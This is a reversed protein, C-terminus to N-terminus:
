GRGRWRSDVLIVFGEAEGCVIEVKRQLGACMANGGHVIRRIRLVEAVYENEFAFVKCVVVAGRGIGLGCSGKMDLVQAFLRGDRRFCRDCGGTRASVGCLFEGELLDWFM